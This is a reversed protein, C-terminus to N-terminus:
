GKGKGKVFPGAQLVMRRALALADDVSGPPMDILGLHQRALRYAEVYKRLDAALCLDMAVRFSPACNLVVHMHGAPVLVAEGVRQRVVRVDFHAAQEGMEEQFELMQQESPIYSMWDDPHPGRRGTVTTAVAAAAATNKLWRLFPAIYPPSVLLWAAVVVPHGTPTTWRPAGKVFIAFCVNVATVHDIHAPNGNQQRTGEGSSAPDANVIILVGDQVQPSVGPALASRFRRRTWELVQRIPRPYSNWDAGKNLPLIFRVVAGQATPDAKLGATISTATQREASPLAERVKEETFPGRVLVDVLDVAEGTDGM